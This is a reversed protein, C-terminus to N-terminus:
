VQFLVVASLAFGYTAAFAEQSFGAAIRLEKIKKGVMVSLQKM